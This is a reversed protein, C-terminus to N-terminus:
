VLGRPPMLRQWVIAKGEKAWEQAWIRAVNEPVPKPPKRVDEVGRWLSGTATLSGFLGPCTHDRAQSILFVWGSSNRRRARSVLPSAWTRKEREGSIYM